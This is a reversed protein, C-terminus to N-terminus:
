DLIVKGSEDLWRFSLYLKNKYEYSCAVLLDNHINIQRFGYLIADPPLDIKFQQQLVSEENYKRYVLGNTGLDKLLIGAHNEDIKNLVNPIEFASNINLNEEFIGPMFYSGDEKNLSIFFPKEAYGETAGLLIKQKFPILSVPRSNSGIKLVKEFEKDRNADLKGAVLTGTDTLWARFCYFISGDDKVTLRPNDSSVYGQTKQLDKDCELHHVFNFDPDFESIYTFSENRYLFVTEWSLLLHDNELVELDYALPGRRISSYVTKKRLINFDEDTAFLILRSSDFGLNYSNVVYWGKNMRYKLLFNGEIFDPQSLKSLKIHKFLNFNRDYELIHNTGDKYNFMQCFFHGDPGAQLDRLVFNNPNGNFLVSLNGDNKKCSTFLALGLLILYFVKNM